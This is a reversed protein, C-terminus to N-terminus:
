VADRKINRNWRDGAEEFPGIPKGHKAIADYFNSSDYRLVEYPEGISAQQRAYRERKAENEAEFKDREALQEAIREERQAQRHLPATERECWAVLAAISLFEKGAAVGATSSTVREVIERPYQLLVDAIAGVFTPNAMKDSQPFQKLLRLTIETAEIQTLRAMLALTLRGENSNTLSQKRTIAVKSGIQDM